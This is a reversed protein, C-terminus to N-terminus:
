KSYFERIYEADHQFQITITDFIHVNNKDKLDIIYEGDELPSFTAVIGHENTKMIKVIKDLKKIYVMINQLVNDSSDKVIAMFNPKKGNIYPLGLVGSPTKQINEGANINTTKIEDTKKVELDVEKELTKVIPVSLKKIQLASENKNIIDIRIDENQKIIENIPTAHPTAILDVIKSNVQKNGTTKKIYNNLQEKAKIHYTTLFENKEVFIDSLFENYTNNKKYVYQTPSNLRKWLNRVWVELPRDQIRFFALAFAILVFTLAILERIIFIPVILYIIYALPLFIVLYLFQKLTLFGILKFEFSTIQRPVVHQDM